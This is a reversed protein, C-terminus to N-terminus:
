CLEEWKGNEALRYHASLGAGAAQVCRLNHLNVVVPAGLNTQVSNGSPILLALCLVDEGICPERDAPLDLAACDDDSLQLLFAPNVVLAPLSVFCLAETTASQLYILPRQAPIEVPIMRHEHEFGPLGMPLYIESGAELSIEGLHSSNVTRRESM